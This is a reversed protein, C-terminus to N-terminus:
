RTLVHIAVAANSGNLFGGANETVGVNPVSSIQRKGAKGQLQWVIEAIQAIGTAGVPHGKSLLGGSPNVPISGTLETLGEEILRGGEGPPCLRLQEYAWLEGPAAADHVEVVGIDRPEIGAIKYAKDAAKEISSPGLDNRAKGSLVVSSKVFILKSTWQKAVHKNCLIAAAAGDSLPSCMFLKLPDSIIRSGMIEDLTRAKQYQAFPNLSGNLSNKVAIKAITEISTGYKEMHLRAEEAYVDMFMSQNDSRGGGPFDSLAEVDTAGMFAQFTKNKDPHIMKEVGLALVVDHLGSAIAQWALHFASSSSACANEINFIPIGELGTGSLFVQGRISDQGWLKGAMANGVYAAEIKSLPIEADALATNLADLSLDKLSRESHKGFKTMGIGLVVVEQM